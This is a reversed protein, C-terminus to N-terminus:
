LYFSMRPDTLFLQSNDYIEFYIFRLKNFNPMNMSCDWKCLGLLYHVVCRSTMCHSTMKPSAMSHDGNVCHFVLVYVKTIINFTISNILIILITTHSLSPHETTNGNNEPHNFLVILLCISKQVTLPKVLVDTLSKTVIWVFVEFLNQNQFIFFM